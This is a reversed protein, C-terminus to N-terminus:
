IVLGPEAGSALGIHSLDFRISHMGDGRSFGMM